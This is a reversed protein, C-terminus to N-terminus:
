RRLGLNGLLPSGRKRLANLYTGEDHRTGTQWCRYLIRIWKFALARRCGAGSSPWANLIGVCNSRKRSCRM